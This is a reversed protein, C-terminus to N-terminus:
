HGAHVRIKQCAGMKLPSVVRLQFDPIQKPPPLPNSYIARRKNCASSNEKLAYPLFLSPTHGVSTNSGGERSAYKAITWVFCM